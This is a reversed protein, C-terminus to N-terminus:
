IGDDGIASVPCCELAEQCLEKEEETKPQKYVFAYGEEDHLKFHDEAVLVCADCNICETDVYFAGEINEPYKQTKDAM